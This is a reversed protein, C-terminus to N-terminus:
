LVIEKPTFDILPLNNLWELNLISITIEDVVWNDNIDQVILVNNKPRMEIGDILNKQEETLIAVRM